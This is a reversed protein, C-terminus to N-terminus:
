YWGTCSSDLLEYLGEECQWKDVTVDILTDDHQNPVYEVGLSALDGAYQHDLEFTIM